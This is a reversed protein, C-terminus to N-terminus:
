KSFDFAAISRRYVYIDYIYSAVPLKSRAFKIKALFIIYLNSDMRLSLKVYTM